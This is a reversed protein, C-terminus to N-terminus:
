NVDVGLELGDNLDVVSVALTLSFFEGRIPLTLRQKRHGYFKSIDISAEGLNIEDENPNAAFLVLCLDKVQVNEKKKEDVYFTSIL